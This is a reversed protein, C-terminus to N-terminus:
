CLSNKGKTIQQNYNYSCNFNVRWGARWNFSWQVYWIDVNGYSKPFILLLPSYLPRLSSNQKVNILDHDDSWYTLAIRNSLKMKSIGFIGRFSSVNDISIRVQPSAYSNTGLLLLKISHIEEQSDSAWGAFSRFWNDGQMCMEDSLDENWKRGDLLAISYVQRSSLM